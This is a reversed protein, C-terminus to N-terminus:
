CNILFKSQQTYIYSSSPTNKIIVLKNNNAMMAFLSRMQDLFEQTINPEAVMNTPNVPGENNLEGDIVGEDGGHRPPTNPLSTEEAQERQPSFPNGSGTAM